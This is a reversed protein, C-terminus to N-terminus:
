QVVRAVRLLQASFDLQQARARSLNLVVRPKSSALEFALVAGREVDGGLASVTLVRTGRLQEAIKPLVDEFGPAFYVLYTRQEAVVRKLQEPSEYVLRQQALERGGLSKMRALQAALQGAARVSENDKARSVILVTLPVKPSKQLGREYWLLRDLLEMQLAVPVSIDEAFASLSTLALAHILVLLRALRRM